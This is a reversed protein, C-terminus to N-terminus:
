KAGFGCFILLTSGRQCGYDALTRADDLPKGAFVLSTEDLSLGFSAAAQRARSSVPITATCQSCIGM